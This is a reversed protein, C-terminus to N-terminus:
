VPVLGKLREVVEDVDVTKMCAYHELPNEATECVHAYWCGGCPLKTDIGIAKEYYKLRMASPISGFVGVLPVGMTGAIHLLGTDPSIFGDLKEVLAFTQELTTRCIFDYPTVKMAVDVTIPHYGNDVLAALLDHIVRGSFSRAGAVSTMAVGINRMQGWDCRKWQEAAWLREKRKTTYIPKCNSPKVGAKHCWIDTRHKAPNDSHEYLACENNLDIAGAANLVVPHEHLGMSPTKSGDLHQVLMTTTTTAVSLPIDHIVDIYPNRRAIEVLSGDIYGSDTILHLDYDPFKEKLGLFVPSLMLM